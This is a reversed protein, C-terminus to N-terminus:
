LFVCAGESMGTSVRVNRVGEGEERDLFCFVLRGEISRLGVEEFEDKSSPNSKELTESTSGSVLFCM